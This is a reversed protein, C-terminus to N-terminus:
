DAYASLRDDIEEAIEGLKNSSRKDFYNTGISISDAATDKSAINGSLYSSLKSLLDDM